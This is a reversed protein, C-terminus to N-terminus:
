PLPLVEQTGTNGVETKSIAESGPRIEGAGDVELRQNSMAGVILVTLAEVIFPNRPEICVKLLRQRRKMGVDSNVICSESRTTSSEKGPLIQEGAPFHQSTEKL